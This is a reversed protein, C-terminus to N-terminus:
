MIYQRFHTCTNREMYQNQIWYLATVSVKESYTADAYRRNKSKTLRTPTGQPGEQRYIAGDLGHSFFLTNNHVTFAGGGYEHVRTRVDYDHPTWRVVEGNEQTPSSTSKNSTYFYIIHTYLLAASEEM